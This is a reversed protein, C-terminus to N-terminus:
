QDGITSFSLNEYKLIKEWKKKCICDPISELINPDQTFSFEEIAKIAFDDCEKCNHPGRISGPATPFSVVKKLHSTRKLVEIVSWLWPPRYYGEIWLKEVLTFNQVNVPNLSIIDSLNSSFIISNISDEISQKETLFPPKLLIYTKIQFGLEKALNARELYLSPNLGKNISNKLVNENKSELGIAIMIKNEKGKFKELSKRTIFEPRTEVLIREAQSFSDIIKLQTEADIENEDFFSGSNYIKVVKEGKYKKMAMNVQNMINEGSVNQPNTDSFYGCMSCGSHYFWFCGRTRLVLVFSSTKGKYPEYENWVAVYENPRDERIVRSRIRKIEDIM